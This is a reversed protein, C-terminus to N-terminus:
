GQELALASWSINGVSRRLAELSELAEILDHAGSTLGGVIAIWVLDIGHNWSLMLRGM